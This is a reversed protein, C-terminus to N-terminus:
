KWVSPMSPKKQKRKQKSDVVVIDRTKGTIDKCSGHFFWTGRKTDKQQAM